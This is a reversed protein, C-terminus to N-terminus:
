KLCARVRALWGFPLCGHRYHNLVMPRIHNLQQEINNILALSARDSRLAARNAAAPVAENDRSLRKSAAPTGASGALKESPAGIVGSVTAVSLPLRSIM